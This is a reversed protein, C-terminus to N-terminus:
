FTSLTTKKWTNTAVCVYISDSTYIVQGEVGTSTSTLPPTTSITHIVGGSFTTDGAIVHDEALSTFHTANSKIVLVKQQTGGGVPQTECYVVGENAGWRLNIGTYWGTNALISYVGCMVEPNSGGSPLSSSIGGVTGLLGVARGDAYMHDGINTVGNIQATTAVYLSGYSSLAMDAVVNQGSIIHAGTSTINGNIEIEKDLKVDTGNYTLTAIGPVTSSISNMKLFNSKIGVQFDVEGAVSQPLTDIKSLYEGRGDYKIINNTADLGLTSYHSTTSIVNPVTIAGNLIADGNLTLQSAVAQPSLTVKSVFDTSTVSGKTTTHLKNNADLGIVRTLLDGTDEPLRSMFLKTDDIDIGNETASSFKVKKESGLRFEDGPMLMIRKKEGVGFDPGSSLSM